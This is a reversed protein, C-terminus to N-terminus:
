TSAGPMSGAVVLCCICWLGQWLSGYFPDAFTLFLNKTGIRHFLREFGACIIKFNFVVRVHKLQFTCHVLKVPSINVSLAFFRGQGKSLNSGIVKRGM